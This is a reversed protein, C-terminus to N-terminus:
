RDAPGPQMTTPKSCVRRMEGSSRAPPQHGRGSKFRCVGKPAVSKLDTADVSEAVPGILFKRSSTEDMRRLMMDSCRRCALPATKIMAKGRHIVRVALLLAPPTLRHLLATVKPPMRLFAPREGAFCRRSFIAILKKSKGLSPVQKGDLGLCGQFPLRFPDLPGSWVRFRAGLSRLAAARYSFARYNTHGGAASNALLPLLMRRALRLPFKSFSRQVDADRM